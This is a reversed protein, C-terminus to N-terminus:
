YRKQIFKAISSSDFFHNCVKHACYYKRGNLLVEKAPELCKSLSEGFPFQKSYLDFYCLVSEKNKLKLLDARKLNSEEAQIYMAEFYEKPVM